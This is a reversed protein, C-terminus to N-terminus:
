VSKAEAPDQAPATRAAQRQVRVPRQALEVGGMASLDSYFPRSRQASGKSAAAAAAAAAAAVAAKGVEEVEGGASLVQLVGSVDSAPLLGAGDGSNPGKGGPRGADGMLESGVGALAVSGFAAAAADAGAQGADGGAGGGAGSARLVEELGLEGDFDAPLYDRVGGRSGGPAARGDSAASTHADRRYPRCHPVPTLLLLHLMACPLWWLCRCRWIELAPRSEAIVM